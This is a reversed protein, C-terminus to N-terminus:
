PWGWGSPKWDPSEQYKATQQPDYCLAEVPIDQANTEGPRIWQVQMSCAGQWKALELKIPHDGQALEMEVRAPPGSGHMGAYKGDLWFMRYRDGRLVFTYKGEKAIRLLGGYRIGFFQTPLDPGPTKTGLDITLAKEPRASHFQKFM